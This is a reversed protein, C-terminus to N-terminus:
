EMLNQFESDRDAQYYDQWYSDLLNYMRFLVVAGKGVTSEIEPEKGTLYEYGYNHTWHYFPYILRIYNRDKALEYDLKYVKKM